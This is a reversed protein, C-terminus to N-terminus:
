SPSSGILQLLGARDISARKELTAFFMHDM